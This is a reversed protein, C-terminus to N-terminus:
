DAAKVAALMRKIADPAERALTRNEADPDTEAAIRAWEVADQLLGPDVSAREGDSVYGRQFLTEFVRFAADARGHAHAREFWSQAKALDRDVGDGKQYIQGLLYSANAQDQAGAKELWYRAAVPDRKTYQGMLLYGGLDTQAHANGATGAQRCLALGREVDPAGGEGKILMNGLACQSQTFGAAIARAYHVRAKAHDRPRGVGDYYCTAINHQADAREAPVQEFYDCARAPDRRIGRAGAGFLEGLAEVASADGAEGLAELAAIATDPDAPDITDLIGLTEASYAQEGVVSASEQLPTNVAAPQMLTLALTFM